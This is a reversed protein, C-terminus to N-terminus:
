WGWPTDGELAWRGAGIDRVIASGDPFYYRVMGKNCATGYETIARHAAAVVEISRGDPSSYEHGGGGMSFSFREARTPM